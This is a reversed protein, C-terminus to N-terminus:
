KHRFTHLTQRVKKFLLAVFFYFLVILLHLLLRLGISDFCQCEITGVFVSLYTSWISNAHDIRHMADVVEASKTLRAM